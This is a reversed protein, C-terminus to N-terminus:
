EVDSDISKPIKPDDQNGIAVQLCPPCVGHTIQPMEEAEFLRLQAVGEEIDIWQESSVKIKKCISCMRIFDTSRPTDAALLRVPSRPETRLLTSTIEILGGPLAKILLELFRRESPSDCRFPIPRSRMGSRARRFLEHYLYRTQSGQIFEWLKHGVVDEPRLDGGWANAYAFVHWNDGVSLITDTSDVRYIFIDENM